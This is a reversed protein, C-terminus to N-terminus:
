IIRAKMEGSSIYTSASLDIGTLNSWEERNTISTRISIGDIMSFGGM